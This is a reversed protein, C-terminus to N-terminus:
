PHCHSVHVPLEIAVGAPLIAALLSCWAVHQMVDFVLSLLSVVVGGLDRFGVIVYEFWTAQEKVARGITRTSLFTSWPAEM